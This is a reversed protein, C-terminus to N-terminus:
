THNRLLVFTSAAGSTALRQNTINASLNETLAADIEVVNSPTSVAAPSFRLTLTSGEPATYINEEITGGTSTPHHYIVSTGTSNLYYWRATADASGCPSDQCYYLESYSNGANCPVVQTRGGCSYLANASGNPLMYSVATSLRYVANSETEGEIIKSLVINAGDQLTQGTIGSSYTQNAANYFVFVGTMLLASFAVAMMLEVLTFANKNMKTRMPKFLGLQKPKTCNKILCQTM